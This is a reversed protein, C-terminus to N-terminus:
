IFSKMDRVAFNEIYNCFSIRLKAAKKRIEVEGMVNTSYGENYIM